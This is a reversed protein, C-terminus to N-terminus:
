RTRTVTVQSGTEATRYIAAIVGFNFRIDAEDLSVSSEGAIRRVLGLLPAHHFHPHDGMPLHEIVAEVKGGM